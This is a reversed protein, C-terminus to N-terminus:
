EYEKSDMDNTIEKNLDPNNRSIEEEKKQADIIANINMSKSKDLDIQDPNKIETFKM